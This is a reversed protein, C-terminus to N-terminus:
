KKFMSWPWRLRNWSVKPYPQNVAGFNKYFAAIGPIDSGEFDLTIARGSFERIINDVLFHNAEQNRGEPLTTSMLFYIRRADTLCLAASLLKEGSRVERITYNDSHKKCFELLGRYHEERVQPFREGYTKKYLSICEEVKGGKVYQLSFQRCRQLNKKLDNSYGSSIVDYSPLLHLIFNNCSTGQGDTNEFNLSIEAFPYLQKAKDLFALQIQPSCQGIIGLQQCFPPQSLYSVGYKKKHTLPMICEYDGAVLAGWQGSLHDLYDTGAYILGGASKEVCSNWRHDEVEKRNLHHITIM